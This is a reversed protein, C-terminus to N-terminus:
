SSIILNSVRSKTKLSVNSNEDRNEDTKILFRFIFDIQNLLYFSKENSLVKTVIPKWIINSYDVTNKLILNSKNSNRLILNEQVNELTRLPFKQLRIGNNEINENSMLETKIKLGDEENQIVLQEYINIPGNKAQNDTSIKLGLSHRVSRQNQSM